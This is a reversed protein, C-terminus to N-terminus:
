SEDTYVFCSPKELNLKPFWLSKTKPTVQQGILKGFAVVDEFRQFNMVIQQSPKADHQIFEPMGQWEKSWDSFQDLDGFLSPEEERIQMGSNINTTNM